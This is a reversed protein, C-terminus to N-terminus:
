RKAKREEYEKIYKEPSELFADRCGTCCVYYTTGKFTVAIKGLGGSVVCEVKKQTAALSEGEKTCAVQYDRVFLTKGSPKREYRYIFRVGDGALNMKVRQTEKTAPDVRELTLVEDKLDGEFILTKKDKATATLQYRQKETLFRLEGSQFYKGNKITMVLWADNGKFRWAWDVTENWTEKPDPRPKEPGGSGKWTGIFDNLAQLAEKTSRKENAATASAANLVLLPVGIVTWLSRM